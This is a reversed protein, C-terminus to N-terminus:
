ASPTSTPSRRSGTSCRASTRSRTRASALRQRAQPVDQRLRDLRAREPYIMAVGLENIFYNDAAWSAPRSQGEPGGHINIMVPGSAPSRAGAAPLPLRLDRPRRLEELARPGARRVGDHRARRDREDTWRTLKGTASTSRTPTAPSRATAFTFGLQRRRTGAGLGIVRRAAASTPGAAGAPPTSCTFGRSGTRTPSSPSRRGDRSLDFEEVDWHIGHHPAHAGTALDIRALRQFESGPRHHSSARATPPSSASRRLRGTAVM